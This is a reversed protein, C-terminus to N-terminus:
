IRVGSQSARYRPSIRGANTLIERESLRLFEGLKAVVVLNYFEIERTVRRNGEDQVTALKAVTAEPRLEGEDFVNKIHKSVVSKDRQFLEAMQNLSLWATEGAFRTEVRVRGDETQYLIIESQPSPDNNM